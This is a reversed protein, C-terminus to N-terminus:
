ARRKATVFGLVALALAAASTGAVCGGGSGSTAKEAATDVSTATFGGSFDTTAAGQVNTNVDPSYVFGLFLKGGAAVNMKEKAHFTTMTGSSPLYDIWMNKNTASIQVLQSQDRSSAYLDLSRGNIATVKATSINDDIRVIITDGATFNTLSITPLAYATMTEANTVKAMVAAIQDGTPASVPANDGSIIKVNTRGSSLSSAEATTVAKKAASVVAGADDSAAKYAAMWKQAATWNEYHGAGDTLGNLYEYHGAADQTPATWTEKAFAAGAFALMSVILTLVLLKKM